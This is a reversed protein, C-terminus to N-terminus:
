GLRSGIGEEGGRIGSRSRGERLCAEFVDVGASGEGATPLVKRAVRRPLVPARELRRGSVVDGGQAQEAPLDRM